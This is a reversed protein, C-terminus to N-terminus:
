VSVTSHLDLKKEQLQKLLKSKSLLNPNKNPFFIMNLKNFKNLLCCFEASFDGVTYNVSVNVLSRVSKCDKCFSCIKQWQVLFTVSQYDILIEIWTFSLSSTCKELMLQQILFLNGNLKKGRLKIFWAFVSRNGWKVGSHSCEVVYMDTCMM